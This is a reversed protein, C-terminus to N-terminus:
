NGPKRQPIIGSRIHATYNSVILLNPAELKYSKNVPGIHAPCISKVYLYGAPRLWAGGTAFCIKRTSFRERGM